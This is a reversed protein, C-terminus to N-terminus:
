GMCLHCPSTPAHSGGLSPVGPLVQPVSHLVPVPACSPTVWAGVCQEALSVAAESEAEPALGWGGAASHSALGGQVAQFDVSGVAQFCFSKCM